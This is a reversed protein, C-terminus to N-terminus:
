EYSAELNVEKIFRSPSEFTYGELKLCDLTIKYKKFHKIKFAIELAKLIEFIEVIDYDFNVEYEQKIGRFLALNFTKDQYLKRNVDDIFKFSGEKISFDFGVKRMVPLRVGQSLFNNTIIPEFGIEKLTKVDKRLETIEKYVKLKNEKIEIKM